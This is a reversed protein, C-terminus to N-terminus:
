VLSVLKGQHAASEYIAKILEVAKRGEHGDVFPQGGTQIAKTFDKLQRRHGETDLSAFPDAAASGLGSAQNAEIAKEIKADIPLRKRFQWLVLRGDEIVASGTTGHIELRAPGGPWVATTAEITGLAGNEFELIAVALDEVELGNHAICKTMASVTRVPGMLWRLLDVQHIGQNILAGGGDLKKKGHWDSNDYYESSRHWKIHANGLVSKGFRGGDVAQKLWSAADSFRSQFVCGLLVGKRAAAAIMRDCRDTRIELPKEVLVHKGAEICAIAVIEHMGSPVCICVADVQCCELMQRYQGYAKANYSAALERAKAEDHDAIAVLKAGPIKALAQAHFKGIGGGGIIAYRVKEMNLGGV